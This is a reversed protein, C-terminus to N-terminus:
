WSKTSHQSSSPFQEDESQSSQSDSDSDSSEAKRRPKREDFTIDSDILHWVDREYKDPKDQKGHKPLPKTPVRWKPKSMERDFDEGRVHGRGAYKKKKMHHKKKEKHKFEREEGYVPREDHASPFTIEPSEETSYSPGHYRTDHPSRVPYFTREDPRESMATHLPKDSAGRSFSPSERRKAKPRTVEKEEDDSLQQKKWESYTLPKEDVSQEDSDDFTM